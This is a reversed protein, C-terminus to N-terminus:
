NVVRFTLRMVKALANEAAIQKPDNSPRIRRLNDMIMADLLADDDELECDDCVGLDNPPKPCGPTLCRERRRRVM